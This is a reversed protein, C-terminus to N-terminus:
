RVRGPRTTTIATRCVDRSGATQCDRLQFAVRSANSPEVVECHRDQARVVGGAPPHRLGDAPRGAREIWLRAGPRREQMRTAATDDDADIEYEGTDVDIVVYKGDDEPLLRPRVHRDYAERGLRGVESVTGRTRPESM